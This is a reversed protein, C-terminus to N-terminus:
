REFTKQLLHQKIFLPIDYLYEGTKAMPYENM